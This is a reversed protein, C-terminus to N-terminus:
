GSKPLEYAPQQALMENLQARASTVDAYHVTPLMAVWPALEPDFAYTM